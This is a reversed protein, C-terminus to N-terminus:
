CGDPRAGCPGQCRGGYTGLGRVGVDVGALCLRDEVWAIQLDNVRTVHRGETDVIQRNIVRKGLPLVDGSPTYPQIDEKPVKLVVSPFLESIQGAPIFRTPAGHDKLALVVVTPFPQELNGV